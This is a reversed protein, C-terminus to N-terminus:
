TGAEHSIPLLTLGPRCPFLERVWRGHDGTQKIKMIFGARCETLGTSPQSMGV